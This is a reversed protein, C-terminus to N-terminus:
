RHRQRGTFAVGDGAADIRCIRESGDRWEPLVQIAPLNISASKTRRGAPLNARGALTKGRMERCNGSNVNRFGYSKVLFKAHGKVCWEVHIL